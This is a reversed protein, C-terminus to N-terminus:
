ALLLLCLFILIALDLLIKAVKENKGILFGLAIFILLISATGKPFEFFVLWSVVILLFGALFRSNLDGIALPLTAKYGSDIEKDELDKVIERAFIAFVAIIFLWALSDSNNKSQSILAFFVPAASIVAIVLNQVILIKRLESYVLGGIILTIALVAFFKNFFALTLALTIASLWLLVAYFLFARPRSSALLKGKKIDHFRDRWDNWVMVAFCFVVVFFAVIWAERPIYQHSIKFSVLVLLAAMGAVPSRLSKIWPRLEKQWNM